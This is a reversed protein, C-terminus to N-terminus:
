IAAEILPVQARAKTLVMGLNASLRCVFTSVYDPNQKGRIFVHILNESNVIVEKFYHFNDLELGRAKKFINEITVVNPGQFLDHTAASLLDLVEQPHSDVTKVGLLMGSGLDVVGAALCEPISAVAKAIVDDFESMPNREKSNCSQSLATVAAPIVAVPEVVQKISSEPGPSVDVVDIAVMLDDGDFHEQFLVQSSDSSLEFGDSNDVQSNAVFGDDIFEDDGDQDLDWRNDSM